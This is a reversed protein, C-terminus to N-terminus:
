QPKRHKTVMSVLEAKVRKPFIGVSKRIKRPIEYRKQFLKEQM